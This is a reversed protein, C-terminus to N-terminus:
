DEDISYRSEPNRTNVPFGAEVLMDFGSGRRRIAIGYNGNGVSLKETAFTRAKRWADALNELPVVSAAPFPVGNGRVIHIHLHTQSRITPPNIVLIIDEEAIFRRAAEWADQWLAKLPSDEAHLQPDEVGCVATMPLLLGHVFRPDPQARRRSLCMKRDRIAVSARSSHSSWVEIERDCGPGLNSKEVVSRGRCDQGALCQTIQRLADNPPTVPCSQGSASKALVLVACALMRTLSKM